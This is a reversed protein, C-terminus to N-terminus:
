TVTRLPSAVWKRVVNFPRTKKADTDNEFLKEASPIGLVEMREKAPLSETKRRIWNEYNSVKRIMDTDLRRFEQSDTCFAFSKEWGYIKKGLVHLVASQSLKPDLPKRKSLLDIISTKSASIIKNVEENIKANSQKSPVCRNPQLTCGLFKFANQCEGQSAKDSGLVPPYLSFGFSGLYAKSFAITDELLAKSASVILLDDIYRVATIGMRNLEHDFDYLLVNGAFASLSSGQAVGIGGSPFISAYGLLDDKNALNVELGREFLEALRKDGTEDLVTAVVNAIPIRTFFEKIDSQYYYSAGASMAKMILMIAPQVGGYPSTLGGVGFESCNIQNLKGLRPDHVPKHKTYIDYEDNATRPQLVQLIARQVVRSEISPIAIPRPNKGAAERKKKDKLVGEVDGFTFRDKRLQEAIRKLHRHHNHEFEAAQGRIKPNKSNLASRKVHRWASFLNEAYRVNEFLSAM